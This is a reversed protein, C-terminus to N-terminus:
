FSTFESKILHILDPAEINTIWKRLENINKSGIWYYSHIDCGKNMFIIEVRGQGDKLIDIFIIGGNFESFDAIEAQPSYDDYDFLEYDSKTFKRFKINM